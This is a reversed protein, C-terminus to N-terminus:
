RGLTIEGTTITNSENLARDLISIEFRFVQGPAYPAGGLSIPLKYRLEGKLPAPKTDAADLRPFYSDYEGKFSGPVIYQTWVGNVKKYPQIFYNHGFGLNNHGGTKTNYPATALDELSLGLDGDGDRFDLVFTLEDVADEIGAPIHNVEVRNYDIAPVVPYDPAQLCGSLATGALGFLTFGSLTRFLNM